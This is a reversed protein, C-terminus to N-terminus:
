KAGATRVLTMERIYTKQWFPPFGRRECTVSVRQGSPLQDITPAPWEGRVIEGNDLRVDVLYRAGITVRSDAHMRYPPIRIKHAAQFVRAVVTGQSTFSAAPQTLPVYVLVILAAALPLLFGSAIMKQRSTV